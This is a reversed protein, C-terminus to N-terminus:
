EQSDNDGQATLGSGYNQAEALLHGPMVHMVADLSSSLEGAM